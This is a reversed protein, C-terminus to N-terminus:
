SECDNCKLGGDNLITYSHLEMPPYLQPTTSNFTFLQMHCDIEPAFQTQRRRLRPLGGGGVAERAKARQSFELTADPKRKGQLSCCM